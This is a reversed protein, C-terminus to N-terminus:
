RNGILRRVVGFVGLVGFVAFWPLDKYPNEFVDGPKFLYDGVFAARSQETLGVERIEDYADWLDSGIVALYSLVVGLVILLVLPVLGKRAPRGAAAEYLFAAGFAIVFSSIATIFGLQALLVTLVVGGLVAGLSALLGLGVRERPETVVPADPFPQGAAPQGAAPQGAVPQGAQLKTLDPRGPSPQAPDPQVPDSSPFSM